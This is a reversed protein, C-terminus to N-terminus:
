RCDDELLDVAARLMETYDFYAHQHLLNRYANFAELVGTPVHTVEVEDERLVSMAQLYLRSDRYRRLTPVKPASTPCTTLGSRRSNRDVFLRAQM